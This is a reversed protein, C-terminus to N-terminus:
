YNLSKGITKKISSCTEKAITLLSSFFTSNNIKRGYIDTNQKCDIKCHDDGGCRYCRDLTERCFHTNAYCADVLHGKRGCRYCIIDENKISEINISKSKKPNIIEYETNIFNINQAHENVNNTNSNNHDNSNNSNNSDNVSNCDDIDNGLEWDLFKDCNDSIHNENGCIYCYKQDHNLLNHLKSKKIENIKINSYDGGRVNIVGYEAMYEFVYKNIDSFDINKIIEQVCIPEYKQTWEFDSSKFHEELIFKEEKTNGVFYKNNKLKLVFITIM